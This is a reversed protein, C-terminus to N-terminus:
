LPAVTGVLRSASAHGASNAQIKRVAEVIAQLASPTLNQHIPLFVLNNYLFDVDPFAGLPVASPRVGAWNVAPVGQEQLRLHADAVGDFFAPLVWPCGHEPLETHLLTVGPMSQFDNRLFQFNQRRSAIIAAIDSHKQLWTSLRSMPQDLLSPDFDAVDSDLAFLPADGSARRRNKVRKALESLSDLIAFAAKALPSSSNELSQDLLSKAVKLTFLASEPKWAVNCTDSSRRLWLEGGDYTPLFKRRSFVSADGFSGLCPCDFRYELVHACDEVLALHHRDCIARFERIKQSYGFYHVALIAETRSTIRSEIESFDPHCDRGIGYFEIEAGFAEFPEVAARCLYAPVLVHAGRSIGLASLCHYIANRAWFFYYSRQTEPARCVGDNSALTMFQLSPFQAKPIPPTILGSDKM